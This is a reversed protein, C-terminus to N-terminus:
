KQIMVDIETDGTFIYANESDSKTDAFGQRKYTTADFTRTIDESIVYHM